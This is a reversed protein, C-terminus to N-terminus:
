LTIIVRWFGRVTLIDKETNPLEIKRSITQEKFKIAVQSSPDFGDVEGQTLFPSKLNVYGFLNGHNYLNEIGIIKWTDTPKSRELISMEFRKYQRSLTQNSILKDNQTSNAKIETGTAEPLSGAYYNLALNELYFQWGPKEYFVPPPNITTPLAAYRRIWETLNEHINSCDLIIQPTTVGGLLDLLIKGTYQRGREDSDSM